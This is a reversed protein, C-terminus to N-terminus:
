TLATPEPAPDEEVRPQHHSTTSPSYILHLNRIYVVWGLGQGLVGVVDRRWLFYALLMSAGILSMWWFIPPVVSRKSKESAIWQVIMRGAFLLQGVLGVTVWILGIPSTINLFASMWGRRAQDEHLRRAFAEPDLVQPSGDDLTIRFAHTGDDNRVITAANRAGQLQIKIDFANEPQPAASPTLIRWVIVAAAILLLIAGLLVVLRKRSSHPPKSSTSVSPQTM